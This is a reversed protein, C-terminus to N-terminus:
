ISAQMTYETNLMLPGIKEEGGKACFKVGMEEQQCEAERYRSPLSRGTACHEVLLRDVDPKKCWM